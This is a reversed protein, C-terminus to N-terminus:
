LKEGCKSCFEATKQCAQGCKPCIKENKIDSRAAKAEEIKEKIEKAESLLGTLKEEDEAKGLEKDFVYQGIKILVDKLKNELAAINYSVKTYDYVDTATDAIAKGVQQTKRMIDDLVAL